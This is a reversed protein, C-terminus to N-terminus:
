REIMAISLLVLLSDTISYVPRQIQLAYWLVPPENRHLPKNIDLGYELFVELAEFSRMRVAFEVPFDGKVVNLDLLFRM